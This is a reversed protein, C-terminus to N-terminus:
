ALVCRSHCSHAHRGGADLRYGGVKYLVARRRGRRLPPAPDAQQPGLGPRGAPQARRLRACAPGAAARHGNDPVRIARCGSVPFGAARAVRASTLNDEEHLYTPATGDALVRRTAQAVLRRALNRGRHAPDTGVALEHGDPDFAALVEAGFPRLWDPLRSDDAPGPTTPRSRNPRGGSRRRSSGAGPRGVAAPLWTDM